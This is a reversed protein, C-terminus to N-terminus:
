DKREEGRISPPGSFHGSSQPHESRYRVPQFKPIAIDETWDQFTVVVEMGITVREPACGVINTMM